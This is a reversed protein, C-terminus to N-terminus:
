NLPFQFWYLPNFYCLSLYQSSPYKRTYLNERIESFPCNETYNFKSFLQVTHLIMSTKKPTICIKASILFFYCTFLNLLAFIHVMCFSSRKCYYLHKGLCEAEFVGHDKILRVHIRTDKENVRKSITNDM